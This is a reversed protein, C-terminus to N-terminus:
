ATSRTSLWQVISDVDSSADGSLKNLLMGDGVLHIV